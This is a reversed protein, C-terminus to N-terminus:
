ATTGALMVTHSVNALLEEVPTYTVKAEAAGPSRGIEMLPMATEQLGWPNSMAASGPRPNLAQASSAGLSPLLLELCPTAASGQLGRPNSSPTPFRAHHTWAGACDEEPEQYM